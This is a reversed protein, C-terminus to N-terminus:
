NGKVKLARRDKCRERPLVRPRRKDSGGRPAVLQVCALRGMCAGDRQHVAHAPQRWGSESGALGLVAKIWLGVMRALGEGQRALADSVHMAGEPKWAPCGLGNCAQAVM